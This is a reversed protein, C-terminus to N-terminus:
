NDSMAYNDALYKTYPADGQAMNYFGMATAGEGTSACGLAYFTCFPNPQSKGNNNSGVTLETWTFYDHLCGSPNTPTGYSANCDEQQWMQFFRHVPSNAYSDYPFNPGTYQFPGGPLVSYPPGNTVGAIRSDPIKGTLGTGGTLLFRYYDIPQSSLGNESARADAYRCLGNDKCVDTPGGNLPPPLVNYPAKGTTPSLEFVNSGTVDASFQQALSYNPGPSGDANIIGESLLNNVTNGPKPQYTAFLHDFSRNEGVVVIVHQIPTKTSPQKPRSSATQATMPM